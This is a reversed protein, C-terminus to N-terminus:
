APLVLVLGPHVLDEDAGIAARNTDILRRWYRTVAATDAAAGRDRLTEEAISWLHDGAEVTWRHATPEAPAPARVAEVSHLPGSPGPPPGAPAPSPEAGLDILSPAAETSTTPAPGLDILAPGSSPPDQAGVPMACSAALGATVGVAMLRRAARPTVVWWVRRVSVSRTISAVWGIASVLALYAAAALGALRLLAIVAVETGTAEWWTLFAPPDPPESAVPVQLLVAAAGAGAALLGFSALTGPPPVSTKM